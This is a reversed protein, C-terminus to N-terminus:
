TSDNQAEKALKKSGCPRELNMIEEIVQSIVHLDAIL